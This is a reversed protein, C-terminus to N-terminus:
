GAAQKNSKNIQILDDKSIVHDIDLLTIVREDVKAMAKIYDMDMDVGFSPRDEIQGPAIDIVELVTDVIIGIYVEAQNVISKIVIISTRADYEQKELNFKLRLDI